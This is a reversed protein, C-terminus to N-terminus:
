AGKYEYRLKELEGVDVETIVYRALFTIGLFVSPLLYLISTPMGGGEIDVAYLSGLALIACLGSNALALYKRNTESLTNPLWSDHNMVATLIPQSYDDHHRNKKDKTGDFSKASEM